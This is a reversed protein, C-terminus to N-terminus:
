RRQAEAMASCAAFFLRYWEDRSLSIDTAGCNQAVHDPNKGGIVTIFQASHQLLWAIAVTAPPVGYREALTGLLRAAAKVQPGADEPPDILGNRFVGRLPSYAQVQIDHLRCFDVIDGFSTYGAPIQVRWDQLQEYASALPYAMGLGIRIQNVVLPQLIYKRLLGIQWSTANSVGFYRVKGARHLEDFAQAVEEPQALADPWHLLLIDLRDTGIRQLSEEASRLISERSADFLYPVEGPTKRLPNLAGGCKTQIVM